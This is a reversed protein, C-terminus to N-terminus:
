KVTGTTLGKIFHKQLIFYAVIGPFMTMVAGAFAYNWQATFEEFFRSITPVLPTVKDSPLLIM